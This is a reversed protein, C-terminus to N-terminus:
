ALRDDIKDRNIDRSWDEWWEDHIELSHRPQWKGAADLGGRENDPSIQSATLPFIFTALILLAVIRRSSKM